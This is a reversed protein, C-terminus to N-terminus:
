ETSRQFPHPNTKLFQELTPNHADRNSLLPTQIKWDVKISKDNWAIGREISPNYYASVKYQVEATESLVSFGHAYGVPILLQKYNQASLEVGWWKKFSSSDPRIDVIVDWIKGQTCRVLKVQGPYLQFHLGRITNKISKSHNDQVFSYQINHKALKLQSYSELFFGRDDEFIQPEIIQVDSFPTSSIKM